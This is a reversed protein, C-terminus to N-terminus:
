LDNVHVLLPLAPSPAVLLRAIARAVDVPPRLTKDRDWAVYREWALGMAERGETRITLQMDTDVAGPYIGHVRVGNGSWEEAMVALAANLGAKAACYASWGPVPALAAGSTLVAYLPDVGRVLHRLASAALLMPGILDVAVAHSWDAPKAEALDRLPGLTAATVVVADIGGLKSAVEDAAAQFLDVRALDLPVAAVRGGTEASLDALLHVDRASAVVHLGALDLEQALARGIGRSAGVVWVRRADTV